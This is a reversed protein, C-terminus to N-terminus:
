VTTALPQRQKTPNWLAREPLQLFYDVENMPISQETGEHTSPVCQRGEERVTALMHGISHFDVYWLKLPQIELCAAPFLFPFESAGQM